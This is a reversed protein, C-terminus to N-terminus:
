DWVEQLLTRVMDQLVYNYAKELDVFYACVENCNGMIEQLGEM